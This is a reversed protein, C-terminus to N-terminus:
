LHNPASGAPVASHATIFHEIAHTVADPREIPSAHGTAPLLAHEANPLREHARRMKEVPAPIDDVGTLLFTPTEAAGLHPLVSPRRFIGRGARYVGVPDNSMIIGKWREIERENEPNNLFAPSFSLAMVRDILPAYGVYRAIFLMTEYRLRTHPNEADPQTDILVASLLPEPDRLLLRFGVYGGMSLGVYHFPGVDLTDILQLLDECLAKVSYGDRTVDSWGQGRWDFVICRYRDRLAEVQHEWMRHTLLFGHGFVLTEPGHGVEDYFYNCGNIDLYPM